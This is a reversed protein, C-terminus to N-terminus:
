IFSGVLGPASPAFYVEASDFALAVAEDVGV